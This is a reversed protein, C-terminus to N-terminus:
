GWGLIQSPWSGLKVQSRLTATMAEWRPRLEAGDPHEAISKPINWAELLDLATLEYGYGRIIWHVAALGCTMAFEPHSSQHAVAARILTRPDCRSQWAMAAAEDYLKLTKATAFWKGEQGPYAAVLRHLLDSPAIEPYQKRLARFTNLNTHSENALLAHHEYAEVRRGAALLATEAFRAVRAPHTNLGSREKVWAIAGDVDGQLLLVKGSWTVAAWSPHRESTVLDLLDQHRGAAFLASYCADTGKFYAFTGGQRTALTSLVHPLLRDVWIGALEPSACVDGWHDNLSEIYPPDDEQIADFLRELWSERTKLEVPASAILPVLDQVAAYVAGGLAGSSGDVQCLAPSVRELFAVAGEAALVPDHRAARQIERLADDVREMALRSSKWGYAERRFRAKFAWTHRTSPTDPPPSTSAPTRSSRTAM